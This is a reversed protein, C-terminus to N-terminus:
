ATSYWYMTPNTAHADREPDKLGSAINEDQGAALRLLKFIQTSTPSLGINEAVSKATYRVGPRSSLLEIISDVDTQQKGNEPGAGDAPMDWWVRVSEGMATLDFTQDKWREGDKLKACAMVGKTGTDSIRRIEIMCDMAGRLASSGREANGTKNTHHVLIVACGLEQAAWRCAHLVQGMDRASNEDAATAATHLTDIVLIDLPKAEGAAQRSQWEGVFQRISVIEAAEDTYLQPISKFFTFNTLTSIAYHQAAAGFRAPLGSVGEGACYAVNLPRLVDFRMAWRTGTCAAMILDIVAFTKGCGPAGYLMVLDGAGMVNEIIWRKPPLSLLETFTLPEFVPASQPTINLAAALLESVDPPPQGNRHKGDTASQSLIM